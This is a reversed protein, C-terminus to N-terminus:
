SLGSHPDLESDEMAVAEKIEQLMKLVQWMTPRQEPSTLSCAVAVEILMVLRDDDGGDDGRGARVWSVMEEPVLHPHQSPTKGTLLELLLVGYSYVDSKATAQHNSNRTEPAKYSSAAAEPVDNDSVALAALCYDVVCAEFDPGLLVNSSKLNGHVLRWAQHIYSLGQAIDEAIKLCSTWHLPRARTSKSGHMLSFLSGNPQYDYILLREERAQFYARLPVLNPHRLGGVSEMHSQFTEKSTGALKNADLRKVSVILRNDLVAKYTTGITGRGLFEASARMLHELTYLQAEGACFMLSGSKELQLGQVRKVKEELENEQEAQIAVAAEATAAADNAVLATSSEKEQNQKRQKKIAFVFCFLSGILVFVGTSFGIIVATRRRKEPSRRSLDVGHLEATQGLALSKPPPATASVSPNFFPPSPNCEINIIEGCLGPNMSFSSVGFRLLTPTVPVTGSLNNGSVNFIELSSQNLPPVTGNFRNWELRLYYIRDLSTLLAPLPGTLNNYSVDLTRLRHLSLVSPPLTGTFSNHDLFLSKLNVFGSLNPIPGTLSNNQLSLVRLQGLRTLTDSAFVGGLDLNEIVLRVVAHQQCLVGQWQCFHFSTRHSFRIGDHLDAKSKFALLADADSPELLNLSGGPSASDVVILSITSLVLISYHFFLWRLLPTAMAPPSSSAFTSKEASETHQINHDESASTHNTWKM